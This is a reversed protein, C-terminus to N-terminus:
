YGARFTDQQRVFGRPGEDFRGGVFARNRGWTPLDM